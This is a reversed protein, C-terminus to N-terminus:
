GRKGLGAAEYVADIVRMNAIADDPGTPPAEGQRVARLFARLQHTYTADGPVRERATGSRDRVTLRHYIQPMVFNLVGAFSVTM